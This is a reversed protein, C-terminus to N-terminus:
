QEGLIAIVKTLAIVFAASTLGYFPITFIVKQPNDSSIQYPSISEWSSSKLFFDESFPLVEGAIYITL